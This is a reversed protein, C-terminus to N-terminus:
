QSEESITSENPQVNTTSSKLQQIYQQLKLIQLEYNMTLKGIISQMEEITVQENMKIEKKYQSQKPQSM